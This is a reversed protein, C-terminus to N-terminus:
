FCKESKIFSGTRSLPIYQFIYVVESSAQMVTSM